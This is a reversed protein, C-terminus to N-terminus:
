AGVKVGLRKCRKSLTSREVQLQSAAKTLIGGCRDLEATILAREYRALAEDLAVAEM